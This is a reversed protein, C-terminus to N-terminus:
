PANVRASGKWAKSRGWGGVGVRVWVGWSWLWTRPLDNCTWWAVRLPAQDPGACVERSCAVWWALAPRSLSTARGM